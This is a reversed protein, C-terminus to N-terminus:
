KGSVKRKGDYREAEERREEEIEQRTAVSFEILYAQKSYIFTVEYGTSELSDEIAQSYGAMIPFYIWADSDDFERNPLNHCLHQVCKESDERQQELADKVIERFENVSM